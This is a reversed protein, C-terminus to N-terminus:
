KKEDLKFKKMLHNFINIKFESFGKMEEKVEEINKEYFLNRKSFFKDALAVVEGELSVPFMDREPLPLKNEKIEEKSILIHNECILAHEKLGEKELIERGLVGHCLYPEKGFCGINPADTLFVGIDHLMGAEKIFQFDFSLGSNEAIEVAKKVVKKSHDVLIRYAKSEKQYYKEIVFLPDMSKTKLALM